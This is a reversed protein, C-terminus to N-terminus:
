RAENCVLTNGGLWEKSNTFAARQMRNDNEFYFSIEVGKDTQHLDFMFAPTYWFGKVGYLVYGSNNDSAVESKLLRRVASQAILGKTDNSLLQNQRNAYCNSVGATIISHVEALPKQITLVEVGAHHQRLYEPDDKAVKAASAVCSVVLALVIITGRSVVNM